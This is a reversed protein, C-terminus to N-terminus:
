KTCVVPAKETLLNRGGHHMESVFLLYFPVGEGNEKKKGLNWAREHGLDDTIQNVTLKQGGAMSCVVMANKGWSIEAVM